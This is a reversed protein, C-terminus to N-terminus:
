KIQAATRIPLRSAATEKISADRCCSPNRHWPEASCTVSRHSASIALATLASGDRTQRMSLLELAAEAKATATQGGQTPAWKQMAVTVILALTMTGVVAM